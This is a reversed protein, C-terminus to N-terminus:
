RKNKLIITQFVIIHEAGEYNSLLLDANPIAAAAKSSEKKVREPFL